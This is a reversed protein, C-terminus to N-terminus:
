QCTHRISGEVSSIGLMDLIQFTTTECGTKYYLEEGNGNNAWSDPGATDGIEGADNGGEGFTASSRTSIDGGTM